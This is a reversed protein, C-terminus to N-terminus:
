RKNVVGPKKKGKQSTMNQSRTEVTAAETSKQRGRDTEKAAPTEGMSPGTVTERCVHLSLGNSSFNREIKRTLWKEVLVNLGARNVWVDKLKLMVQITIIRNICQISM